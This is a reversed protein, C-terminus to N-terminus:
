PTYLVYTYVLKEDKVLALKSGKIGDRKHALIIGNKIGVQYDFYKDTTDFTAFNFVIKIIRDM